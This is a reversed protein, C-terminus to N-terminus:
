PTWGRLAAIFEPSYGARARDDANVPDGRMMLPTLPPVLRSRWTDFDDKGALEALWHLAFACHPIEERGIQAEIRAAEADGAALLAAAFRPAHDLNGGELGVGLTALFSAADVALPVRTWFWDNVEFAGYAYGLTSLHARYMAMHRLEDHAIKLLGRRFALPACPFALIAWCMLEAAQLEHHLFGHLLLARKAAHILAGPKPAKMRRTAAVLEPPRGPALVRLPQFATAWIEPVPPPALKYALDTSAIYAAAWDEVHNM